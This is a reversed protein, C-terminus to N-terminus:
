QVLGTLQRTKFPCVKDKHLVSSYAHLWVDNHYQQLTANIHECNSPSVSGGVILQMHSPLMKATEVLKSLGEVAGRGSNWPTGSTLIGSVGLQVLVAVTDRWNVAADFARHFTVTLALANALKMWERMAPIDVAGDDSLAGLVIGNAGLEKVM